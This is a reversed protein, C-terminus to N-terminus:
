VENQSLYKENRKLSSYEKELRAFLSDGMEICKISNESREQIM